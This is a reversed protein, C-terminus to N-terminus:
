WTLVVQHNQSSVRWARSLTKYFMSKNNSKWPSHGLYPPTAWSPSCRGQLCPTLPEIGKMEVMAAFAAFCSHENFVLYSFRVSLKVPNLFFNLDFFWPRKSFRPFSCNPRMDFSLRIWSFLFHSFAKENYFLNYAFELLILSCLFNLRFLAYPSHRPMLLRRLVHCAAILQPSSCILKSGCIESNPFWM